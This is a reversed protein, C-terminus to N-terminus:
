EAHEAPLIAKFENVEYKKSQREGMPMEQALCAELESKSIYRRFAEKFDEELRRLIQELGDLLVSGEVAEPWPEAEPLELVSNSRRSSKAVQGSINAAEIEEEEPTMPLTACADQRRDVLGEAAEERVRMPSGDAGQNLTQLAAAEGNREQTIVVSEHQNFNTETKM